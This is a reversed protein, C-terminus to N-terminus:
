MLVGLFYAIYYSVKLLDGMSESIVNNKQLESIFSELSLIKKKMRRSSRQLNSLKRTKKMLQKKAVFAVKEAIGPLALDSESFDGVYRFRKACTSM